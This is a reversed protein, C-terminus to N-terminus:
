CIGTLEVDGIVAEEREHGIVAVELIIDLHGIALNAVLDVTEELLLLLVGTLLGPLGAVTGKQM